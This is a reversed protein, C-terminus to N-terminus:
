EFPVVVLTELKNKKVIQPDNLYFEFSENSLKINEKKAKELIKGYTKSVQYYPGLHIKQLTNKIEPLKVFGISALMRKPHEKVSICVEIDWKMFMMRIFSILGKKNAGVWDVNHYRAFFQNDETCEPLESLLTAFSKKFFGAIKYTPVERRLSIYSFSDLSKIQIDTM